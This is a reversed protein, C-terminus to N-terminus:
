LEKWAWGDGRRWDDYVDRRRQLLWARQEDYDLPVPQTRKAGNEWEAIVHAHIDPCGSYCGAGECIDIDSVIMSVVAGAPKQSERNWRELAERSIRFMTM